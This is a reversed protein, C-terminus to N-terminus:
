KGFHYVIGGGVFINHQRTNTTKVNLDPVGTWFDRVEGRVSFKPHFRVDLGAGVQLAGTTTSTSGPNKGGYLLTSSERFLGVGGGISAWPSIATMSFFNVRASPAIFISKYSNPIVNAGTAIDEDLNFEAPVELWLRSFGEGLVRRSYNAEFTLGNGFHVIPNSFNAGPIGQDSIFTRGILGSLQNDQAVATQLLMMFALLGVLSFRKAFM